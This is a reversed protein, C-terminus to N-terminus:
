VSFGYGYAPKTVIFRGYAGLKSRLRTINVDVVRDVVIVEEPWVAKLIEERTFVRGPNRMLLSLIEFEKRPMRVEEGDVRCIKREPSLSLGDFTIFGEENHERGVAGAPAQGATRRLVTKVRALVNRISYPKTIYDDAGLELGAIMDDEADKATCFIVPISATAQRKKLISALQTGSIDGMMIDLLILSVGSLDLALVEEASHATVVDYGAEVLNFRLAECLTEEDDVVLIKPKNQAM